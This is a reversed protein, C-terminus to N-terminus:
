ASLLNTAKADITPPCPGKRPSSAGRASTWYVQSVLSVFRRVQYRPKRRAGENGHCCKPSCATTSTVATMRGEAVALTPWGAGSKRHLRRLIESARRWRMARRSDRCTARGTEVDSLRRVTFDGTAVRRAAAVVDGLPRGVRRMTLAVVVFILVLIIITTAPRRPIADNGAFSRLLTVLGFVSLWLVVALLTGARAVFFHRGRRWPPRHRPPWADDAPWWPPPGHGRTPATM